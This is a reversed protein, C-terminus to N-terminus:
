NGKAVVCEAKSPTIYENQFDYLDSVGTDGWTWGYPAGEGDRRFIGDMDVYPNEFYVVNYSTGKVEPSAYTVEQIIYLGSRFGYRDAEKATLLYYGHYKVSQISLDSSKIQSDFYDSAESIAQALIEDTLQGQEMICYEQPDPITYTYTESAPLADFKDACFEYLTAAEYTKAHITVEDGISLYGNREDRVVYEIGDHPSWVSVELFPSCGTVTVDLNEFLDIEGLEELGSVTFEKSEVEPLFEQNICYDILNSGNPGTLTVTVVDGNSLNEEKSLVYGVNDGGNVQVDCQGYGDFGYFSVEINGFLDFKYLEPLDKVEVTWSDGSKPTIKANLADELADPYTVTVTIIDGNSLHDTKDLTYDVKALLELMMWIETDSKKTAGDALVLAELSADDIEYDALGYGNAKTIEVEVYDCLDIQKKGGCGTLAAMAMVVILLCLLAHKIYKKM